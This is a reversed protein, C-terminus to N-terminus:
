NSVRKQFKVFNQYKIKCLQSIKLPNILALNELQNEIPLFNFNEMCFGQIWQQFNMYIVDNDNDFNLQKKFLKFRNHFQM